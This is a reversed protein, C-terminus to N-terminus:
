VEHRRWSHRAVSVDGGDSDDDRRMASKPESQWRGDGAGGAGTVWVRRQHPHLQSEAPHLVAAVASAAAGEAAMAAEAVEAAKKGGDAVVADCMTSVSPPGSPGNHLLRWVDWPPARLSVAAASGGLSAETAASPAAAAEAQTSGGDTNDPTAAAKSPNSSPAAALPSHTTGMTMSDTVAAIPPTM